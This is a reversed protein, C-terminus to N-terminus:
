LFIESPFLGMCLYKTFNVGITRLYAYFLAFHLIKHLIMLIEWYRDKKKVNSLSLCVFFPVSCFTPWPPKPGFCLFPWSDKM